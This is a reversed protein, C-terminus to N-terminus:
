SEWRIGIRGVADAEAVHVTGGSDPSLERGPGADRMRVCLAPLVAFRAELLYDRVPRELTRVFRRAAPRAPFMARYEVIVSEGPAPAADLVLDATLRSRDLDHEVGAVRCNRDALIKPTVGPELDWRVPWRELGTGGARLVVRAHVASLRGHDDIDARDHQSVAVLHGPPQTRGRPKPPGLLAGFSGAPLELLQELGALVRLSEAREPRRRGSQWLSLTPVSVSLGRRALRHRVRDLSLGSETIAARLAAPFPGDSLLRELDASRDATRRM